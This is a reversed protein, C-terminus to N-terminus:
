AAQKRRMAMGIMPLGLFMLAWQEAEPVATNINNGGTATYDYTVIVSAASNNGINALLNGTHNGFVSFSSDTFIQGSLSGTGIWSALGSSFTNLYSAATNSQSGSSATTHSLIIGPTFWSAASIEASVGGIVLDFLTTTSESVNTASRGGNNTLDTSTVNFGSFDISVSNLTGLSSNFQNVSFDKTWDSLSLSQSFTQQLTAAQAYSNGLSLVAIGAIMVSKKMFCLRTFLNPNDANDNIQLLLLL